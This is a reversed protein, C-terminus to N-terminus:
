EHSRTALLDSGNITGSCDVDCCANGTTVPQGAAGRVALLDAASVQGSQNADGALTRFEVDRDGDLDSSDAKKVQTTVTLTYIDDDPLPSSLPITVVTDGGTVVPTALRHTQSGTSQGVLTIASTLPSLTSPDIADRFTIRLKDFGGERPEIAGDTLTTALEGATGHTVLGEWSQISEATRAEAIAVWLHWAAYAKRNGNLAQSHAASCAYWDDPHAAQWVLAWNSDRTGNGDSDYDCNDTCLLPMYNVLGDPDYSEIDAFDYLVKNNVTCYDRIQQNRVNVNGTLGGGNLHGTMYVFTVDPYDIELQNMLNLYININAESTDVQGCWSWIIVNVDSNAPNDLYTRTRTAWTTYDPNGLDGEAFCDDLDLAGVLPGDNWRYLGTPTGYRTQMFADLDTMGGTVQSGHSTHGYAIHLEDKAKEIQAQSLATIDTDAHDIIIPADALVSAPSSLLILACFFAAIMLRAFSTNM